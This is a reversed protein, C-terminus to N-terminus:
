VTLSYEAFLSVLSFKHLPNPLSYLEVQVQICEDSGQAQQHGEDLWGRLLHVLEVM